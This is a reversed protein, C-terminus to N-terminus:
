FWNKMLHLIFFIELKWCHQPTRTRFQDNDFIVEKTLNCTLYLLLQLGNIRKPETLTVYLVVLSGGEFNRWDIWSSPSYHFRQVATAAEMNKGRVASCSVLICSASELYNLYIPKHSM